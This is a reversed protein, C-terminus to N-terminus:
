PSQRAKFLRHLGKDHYRDDSSGMEEATYASKVNLVQVQKTDEIIKIEVRWTRYALLVKDETFYLRKKKADAPDYELQNVVFGRL